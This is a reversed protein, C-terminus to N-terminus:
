AWLQLWAVGELLAAVPLQQWLSAEEAPPAAELEWSAETGLALQRPIARLSVYHLRLECRLSSLM